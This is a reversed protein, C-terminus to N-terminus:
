LRDKLGKKYNRSLYDIKLNNDFYIIENKFDVKKIKDLNVICARHTKYFRDDLKLM